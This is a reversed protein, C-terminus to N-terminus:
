KDSQPMKFSGMNTVQYQSLDFTKHSDQNVDTVKLVTREGTEKDLSESEMLFGWPMGNSYLATKFVASMLDRTELKVDRTVWFDSKDMEDEYVYEDCKYGAITKTRGTKKLNPNLTTMDTPNEQMEKDAELLSDANMMLNLGYVLGTHKGDEDSLIITAKNKYDFIYVGKGKPSGDSEGGTFEYAFNHRGPNMFTVMNADNALSGDKKYTKINMTTSYKFEYEKEIPVPEGSMGMSKMMRQMREQRMADRSNEEEKASVTDNKNGVISDELRDLGKDIQQDVKDEARQEAKEQTKKLAKKAMKELFGQAQVPQSFSLAGAFIFLLIWTKKM